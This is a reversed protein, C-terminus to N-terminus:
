AACFYIQLPEGEVSYGVCLSSEGALPHGDMEEVTEAGPQGAEEAWRQVVRSFFDQPSVAVDLRQANGYNLVSVNYILRQREQLTKLVSPALAIGVIASVTQEKLRWQWEPYAKPYNEVIYSTRSVLGYERQLQTSLLHTFKKIKAALKNRSVLEDCQRQNRLYWYHYDALLHQLQYETLVALQILAAGLSLHTLAQRHLLDDLQQCNLWGLSLALEGFMVDTDRQRLNIQANQKETLYGAELALQGLSKNRQSQLALAKHLQTQDIIGKAQLYQGFFTAVM